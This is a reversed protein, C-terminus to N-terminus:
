FYVQVGGTFTRSPPISFQTNPYDPDIGDKNARWIIGLNAVNAYIRIKNLHFKRSLDDKLDYSISIYNLRINDGKRVLVESNAYFFDRNSNAPYVLSPVNTKLEDGQSQWRKEYDSNSIRSSFLTSYNISQKRFYFGFKYSLNLTLSIGRWSFTNSLSGFCTPLAPGNYVLNQLSDRILSSYSKDIEKNLYGRPDGTLPDLGAWKYSFISYLPKGEIGAIVSGNGVINSGTPSRLYYKSVTSNNNSFLLTTGWKFRRNINITNLTVDVGKGNMSAVNRLVTYTDLGSTYDVPSIGYLDSGRKLYYEITGSIRSNQTEFDLGFNIMRTKEWRLLPNEFQSITAYNFNTFDAAGFYTLTTVASLNPSANGQYGYTTRFKLFKMFKLHYFPEDSVIWNLGASWLPSWKNNTAVGFLNSGDKRASLSLTYRSHYTYAANGYLSLFRNNKDELDFYQPINQQRGNLFNPYSNVYDVNAYTLIDNDYGYIRDANSKTHLERTESGLIGVIRHNKWTHNFNLQMRLSQSELGSVSKDLIGANPIIYSIMGTSMDLQSFQNILDRSFFSEHDALRDIATAQSEFQYKIDITAYKNVAYQLALEATLDNINTNAYDHKWDSLPYYQWDLLKGEGATDTYIKRYKYLPLENGAEDEFQAYPYIGNTGNGLFISGYGPKGTTKKSQTFYVSTSLQLNKFPKYTTEVLANIRSYKADLNDINKDIGGSVLFALNDSGGSLNLSYQQNFGPAYIYKAFDNRVDLSRITNIQANVETSSLEGLAEKQLLEVVPSVEPHYFNNLQRNYYGKDFLYTEVDIFDSSTMPTTYYLDPQDVTTINANLEIKTHQDFRGKRTTIVIVGNGARVGWISAAAADKLITISEIDNPNINSIDGEYPFNNLIVLPKTAGIITSYGRITLPARNTNRDFSLGSAIGDLRTLITTGAQENLKERGIFVFSGTVREPPLRQYGTNIIVSDQNFVEREMEIVLLSSHGEVTVGQTKFGVFSIILMDGAKANIKFFAHADTQVMQGSNRNLVTAGNLIGSASDTTILRGTIISRTISNDQSSQALLSNGRGAIVFLLTAAWIKTVTKWKNALYINHTFTKATQKSM